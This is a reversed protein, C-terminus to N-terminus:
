VAARPASAVQLALTMFTSNPDPRYAGFPECEVFGHKAYLARAPAFFPQSGTELSVRGVSRSRADALAHLLLTSAIGAGRRAPDTRMSKLEEHGPEVSALAGTGVLAGDPARAVWLRVGDRQLGTLDLAHQSCAPATPALDDLHAQLFAALAADEFDARAIQLATAAHATM